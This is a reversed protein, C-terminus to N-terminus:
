ADPQEAYSDDIETAIKQLTQIEDQAFQTFIFADRGNLRSQSPAAFYHALEELPYSVLGLHYEVSDYAGALGRDMLMSKFRQVAEAVLRVHLGGYEPSHGASISEFIKEFYYDITAPFTAALKQNRFMARHEGEEKKLAAAVQELVSRLRARQTSILGPLSVGKFEAPAHDPYLTMLQFGSKSMSIRSIFHTRARGFRKTPHGISANRIERVERLLPDREYTLGLAEALHQVADQQLILAQLVGYVLIYTAGDDDTDPADAYADFALETDGVVDLSSCLQHWAGSDKLLAHQKRARNIFDRIQQELQSITTDSM